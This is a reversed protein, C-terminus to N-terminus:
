FLGQHDCGRKPPHAPTTLWAWWSTQRQADFAERMRADERVNDLLMKAMTEPMREWMLQEQVRCQLTIQADLRLIVVAMLVLGLAGTVLVLRMPWRRRSPAVRAAPPKHQRIPRTAAASTAPKRRRKASETPDM